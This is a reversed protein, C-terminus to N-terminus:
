DGHRPGWHHVIYSLDSETRAAVLKPVNPGIALCSPKACEPCAVVLGRHPPWAYGDPQSVEFSPLPWQALLAGLTIQADDMHAACHPCRPAEGDVLGGKTVRPRTM